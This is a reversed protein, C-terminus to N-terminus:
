WTYNNISVNKVHETYSHKQTDLNLSKKLNRFLIAIIFGICFELGALALFFFATSTLIVDDNIIGTIVM